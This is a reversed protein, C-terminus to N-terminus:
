PIAPFNPDLNLTAEALRLIRDEEDYNALDQCTARTNYCKRDSNANVGFSGATSGIAATCPSQGYTLGCVPLDIEVFTQRETSM